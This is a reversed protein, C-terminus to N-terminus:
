EASARDEQELILTRVDALVMRPDLMGFSYINRVMGERDVLYVRLLHYFPGLPDNPDKKRDVRQGYARLIPELEETGSTTLFRWEAGTEDPHLGSGYDAMVRPTDHEPDFSFTLLRLNEAIVPDKKSIGHIRYLAGSAYPCARPDACRTYIFSLLTIRGTLLDRLRRPEGDAGLVNGDGAAKLVPLSYSGPEPPDYDHDPTRGLSLEPRESVKGTGGGGDQALATRTTAIICVMVV